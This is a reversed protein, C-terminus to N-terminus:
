KKIEKRFYKKWSKLSNGNGLFDAVEIYKELFQEYCDTCLDKATLSLVDSNIDKLCVSFAGQYDVEKGCVDCVFVNKKM